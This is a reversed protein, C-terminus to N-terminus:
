VFLVTLHGGVLRNGDRFDNLSHDLIVTLNKNSMYYEFLLAIYHHLLKATDNQKPINCMATLNTSCINMQLKFMSKAKRVGYQRIYPRPNYHRINCMVSGNNCDHVYRSKKLLCISRM